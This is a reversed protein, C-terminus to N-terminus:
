KAQAGSRAAASGLPNEAIATFCVYVDFRDENRVTGLMASYPAIGFETFRFQATAEVHLTREKVDINAAADREVTKGHLTFRVTAAYAFETSGLKATKPTVRVLEATVEPYKAADLQDSDLMHQRISSRDSPSVPGQAEELIGLRVVAPM